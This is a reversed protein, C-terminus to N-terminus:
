RSLKVITNKSGNRTFQFTVRDGESVGEIVAPDSIEFAMNMAPWRLQPIPDHFIRIMNQEKVIAKVIGSTEITDAKQVTAHSSHDHETAMAQASMILLTALLLSKLM